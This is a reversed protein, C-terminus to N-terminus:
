VCKKGWYLKTHGDERPRYGDRSPATQISEHGPELAVERAVEAFRQGRCWRSRCCVPLLRGEVQPFRQFTPVFIIFFSSFHHFIIFFSSFHHFIIFFSSFHHFIIFFSSFIIFFSSFHHFIIFFSSFHHFIIFFSYKKNKKAQLIMGALHNLVM